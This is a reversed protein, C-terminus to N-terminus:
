EAAEPVSVGSQDLPEHAALAILINATLGNENAKATDLIAAWWEAPISDRQWWKSVVSSSGAAVDAAMVERSPWLDIVNRFSAFSM